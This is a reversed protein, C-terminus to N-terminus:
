TARRRCPSDGPKLWGRIARESEPVPARPGRAVSAEGQPLIASALKADHSARGRAPLLRPGGTLPGAQARREAAHQRTDDAPRPLPQPANRSSLASALAALLRGSRSGRSAVSWVVFESRPRRGSSPCGRGLQDADDVILRVFLRRDLLGDLFIVHRCVLAGPQDRLPPISDIRM